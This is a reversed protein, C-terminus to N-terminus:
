SGYAGIDSTAPIAAGDVINRAFVDAFWPSMLSGKSGLGNFIGLMPHQPHWGMKPNSRSIIPRVAARHDVVTYGVRWFAKLKAEIDDRAEASPVCDLASWDYTSGVLFVDRESTPAIWIGRHYCHPPVPAHFRVTLIDGKAANFPVWSFYPNQAAGYGECSIVRRARQGGVSVSNGEFVVSNAWDLQAAIFPFSARSAELYAVTDLQAGQFTFGGASVDCVGDDISGGGDAALSRGDAALSRGGAALGEGDAALYPEYEARDRRKAWVTREAESAFLRIARREFFFRAGTRAEVDWYFSRASALHTEMGPAIVMRKGTIPTILGAAIRSSTVARPADMVLVRQGAAILRWALATGALGQGVIIVDWVNEASRTDGM